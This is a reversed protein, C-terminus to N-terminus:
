RSKRWVKWDREARIELMQQISDILSRLRSGLKGRILRSRTVAFSNERNLGPESTPSPSILSGLSRVYRQRSRQRKAAVCTRAAFRNGSKSRERSIAFWALNWSSPCSRAAFDRPEAKIVYATVRVASTSGTGRLRWDRMTKWGIPWPITQEVSVREDQDDGYVQYDNSLEPCHQEASLDNQTM